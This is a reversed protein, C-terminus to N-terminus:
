ALRGVSAVRRAHQGRLLGIGSSTQAARGGAAVGLKSAHGPPAAANARCGAATTSGGAAGSYNGPSAGDADAAADDCSGAAAATAAGAPKRMRGFLESSGPYSTAPQRM